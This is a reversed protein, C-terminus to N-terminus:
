ELVERCRRRVAILVVLAGLVVLVFPWGHKLWHRAQWYHQKWPLWKASRFDPQPCTRGFDRGWAVHAGQHVYERYLASARKPDTDRMWGTAECMVAAYAQSRPPLLAAAQQALDAAVHRYHFRADPQAASAAVRAAEGNGIFDKGKTSPLDQPPYSGSWEANDPALETGFLEMGDSRTIRAQAYLAQARASVSWARDDRHAAILMEDKKRWASDDFYALAEERRGVRMLRRALLNRLQEAPASPPTDGNADAVKKPAPQVNRDVFGKLEDVTLVREAVYAADPWYEAAGAYLRSMADLYDDRGLALVGRESEVRCLPHQVVNDIGETGESWAEDSPFGKAATAYERLARAQDGARLALKARVWAVLPTASKAALQAALPYHGARYAGAALRDAGDFHDLGHRQVAALFGEVNLSGPKPTGLGTASAPYSAQLAADRDDETTTGALPWDQAFEGSRAYFYAALLRQSLPDDLAKDLLDPHALISRAVFLLSARGSRSGHAAQTAYSKVADVVNGHHWQIRAQEGFSAVALGLPDAAGSLARERLTEFAAIARDTDGGAALVRGLMYQAWLGRRPREVPSLVLVSRFRAAAAGMDGAKFAIAGLTYDLLEPALGEAMTAAASSGPAARMMQVKKAEDANLGIAEAKERADNGDDWPSDEVTHLRDDPKPLLRSAEFDFTGEPLDFLSAKRDDLLEQPFDQGCALAATIPLACALAILIPIARISKRCVSTGFAILRTLAQHNPVDKYRVKAARLGSEGNRRAGACCTASALVPLRRVGRNPFNCPSCNESCDLIPISM